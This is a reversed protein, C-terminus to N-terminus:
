GIRYSQKWGEGSPPRGKSPCLNFQPIKPKYSVARKPFTNWRPKECDLLLQLSEVRFADSGDQRSVWILLLRNWHPLCWKKDKWSSLQVQSLGDSRSGLYFRPTSISWTWSERGSGSSNTVKKPKRRKPEDSVRRRQWPLNAGISRAKITIIKKSSNSKQSHIEFVLEVM